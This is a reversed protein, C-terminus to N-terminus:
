GMIKRSLERAMQKHIEKTPHVSDPLAFYINYRNVVSSHLMDIFEIGYYECVTKEAEYFDELTAEANNEKGIGWNTTVTCGSRCNIPSIVVIKVAPNDTLIKEICYRMNSIFTGGTTVDDEMSGVGNDQLWDNVGYALTVLEAASFDIADVQERANTEPASGGKVVYGSGSVGKNTLTWGNYGAALAAWCNVTDVGSGGTYGYMGRTISDGLAYWQLDFGGSPEGELADLRVKVDALGVPEPYVIGDVSWRGPIYNTNENGPYLKAIVAILIQQEDLADWASVCRVAESTRDYVLLCVNSETNRAVTTKAITIRGDPAFLYGDNLTIEDGVIDLVTDRITIYPGVNRARSLAESALDAANSIDEELGSVDIQEPCVVGDVSWLGPIYNASPSKEYGGSSLIAILIQSDTMDGAYISKTRNEVVTEATDYVLLSMGSRTNRSVKNGIVEWRIGRAYLYGNSITIENTTTDVALTVDKYSVFRGMNNVRDAVTDLEAQVTNVADWLKKSDISIKQWHVDALTAASGVLAIYYQGTQGDPYGCLYMSPWDRSEGGRTGAYFPVLVGSKGVVPLGFSAPLDYSVRYFYQHDLDLFTNWEEGLSSAKVSWPWPRLSGRFEELEKDFGDLIGNVDALSTCRYYDNSIGKGAAPNRAVEICLPFVGIQDLTSPEQIVVAVEVKGWATLVQPALIARVVNGSFSCAKTGDPLKDYLGATGDSKRFAVAVKMGAPVEWAVGGSLLTLELVRTNADCQVMELCPLLRRQEMHVTLKHVIEM